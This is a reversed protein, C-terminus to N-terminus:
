RARWSAVRRRHLAAFCGGRAITDASSEKTYRGATMQRSADATQRSDDMCRHLTMTIQLDMRFKHGDTLLPSLAVPVAHARVENAAGGATLLDLVRSMYHNYYLELFSNKEVPGEMMDPDLLLRLLELAQFCQRSLTVLSTYRSLRPTQCECRGDHQTLLWGCCSWHRFCRFFRTHFYFDSEMLSQMMDPGLLLRLLELPLSRSCLAPCRAGHQGRSLTLM